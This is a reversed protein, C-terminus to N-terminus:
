YARAWIPTTEALRGCYVCKGNKKADFPICRTTAKTKEKVLKECESNGCWPAKIFGKEKELIKEFEELNKAEFTNQKVFDTARQFLSNQIKKFTEAVSNELKNNEVVEKEGSDRRVLIVQNKSIDKPGIEIRLPVGKLEWENFKWGPTFSEREDIQVRTGKINLQQLVEHSREIVNKHDKETKWIPVIVVQIPAIKPPFILGKKDGHTLILGGIARTSIGWSTQWAFKRNGKEDQFNINFAKSFNQGLNHVTAIQLGKGDLLLTECSTSYSAGAFKERETKKGTIVPIALIDEFFNKYINLAEIVQQESEKRSSHVTHAEHWLFETTRLLPLPRMEWRIVNSWQNIKLPLDRWSNIWKSFLSYMITESTPRIVLAEELKKGGAHTVVALEPSFGKVHEKEKSLLSEPILSPFYANQCGLSKIMPNLMEEVLEWIAYGYPRLIITGRVPGYDFIEAKKITKIYWSSIEEKKLRKM